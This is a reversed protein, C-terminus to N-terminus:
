ARSVLRAAGDGTLCGPAVPRGSVALLLDIARGRVEAGDGIEVDADTAILRVSEVRERGGGFGVATKAQYRLAAVIATDPYDGILGLPRRIDEGHVIAEVLRTAPPALPTRTLTGAARLAALTDSPHDQRERAVGKANDRHFDFRALIMRLAFSSRSTKATDVIHALVDHVTWGACLSPTAWREAPLTELDAVLRAREAHVMPWVAALETNMTLCVAPM